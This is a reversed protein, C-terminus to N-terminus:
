VQVSEKDHIKITVVGLYSNKPKGGYAEVPYLGGDSPRITVTNESGFLYPVSFYIHVIQSTTRENKRGDYIAFEGECGTPSLLRGASNILAHSGPGITQEVTRLECSKCGTRYWKGYQLVVDTLYLTKTTHNEIIFTAWQNEGASASQVLYLGLCILLFVKM